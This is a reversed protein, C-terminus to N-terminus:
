GYQAGRRADGLVSSGGSESRIGRGTSQGPGPRAGRRTDGLISNDGFSDRSQLTMLPKEQAAARRRPRPAPAAPVAETLLDFCAPESPACRRRPSLSLSLPLSPPESPACGAHKPTQPERARKARHAHRGPREIVVTRRKKLFIKGKKLKVAAAHM